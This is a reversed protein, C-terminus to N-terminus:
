RSGYYEEEVRVFVSSLGRLSEESRGEADKLLQDDPFYRCSPLEIRM